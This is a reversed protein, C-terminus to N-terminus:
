THRRHALGRGQSNHKVFARAYVGRKECENILHQKDHIYIPETDINEWWGRVWSDTKLAASTEGKTATSQPSMEVVKGQREDFYFRRTPKGWGRKGREYSSKETRREM